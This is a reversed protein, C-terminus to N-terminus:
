TISPPRGSGWTSSFSCWCPFSRPWRTSALERPGSLQVALAEREEKQLSQNVQDLLLNIRVREEGPGVKLAQQLAFM